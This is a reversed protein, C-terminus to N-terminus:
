ATSNDAVLPCPKDGQVKTDWKRREEYFSMNIIRTDNQIVSLQISRSM